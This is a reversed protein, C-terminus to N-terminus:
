GYRFLVFASPTISCIEKHITSLWTNPSLSRVYTDKMLCIVTVYWMIIHFVNNKKVRLRTLIDSSDVNIQLLKSVDSSFEFTREM